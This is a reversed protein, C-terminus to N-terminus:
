DSWTVRQYKVLDPRDPAIIATQKRIDWIVSVTTRFDLGDSSAFLVPHSSFLRKLEEPKKDASTVLFNLAYEQRWFSRALMRNTRGKDGAFWTDILYQENFRPHNIHAIFHEGSKPRIIINGIFQRANFEITALGGDKDAYTQALAVNM